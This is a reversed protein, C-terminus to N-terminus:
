GKSPADEIEMTKEPSTHGRVITIRSPALGLHKALLAILAENAQGDTPAATVWAKATEGEIEIRNHSSRPTLRVALRRM